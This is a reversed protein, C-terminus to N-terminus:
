RHTINFRRLEPQLEAAQHLERELVRDLSRDVQDQQDAQRQDNNASAEAVLATVTRDLEDALRGPLLEKYTSALTRYYWLTKQKSEEGASQFRTFVTDGHERFDALIARANHLKDAASVLRVSKTASYLHAIYKPKREDWHPKKAGAEAYADSSGDVIDAVADGFKSRIADLTTKGGQDEVADHLLAAIAEHENAGYEMAISSVALLHSIYPLDSGKRTQRAHLYTAYTLAEALNQMNFFRPATTM